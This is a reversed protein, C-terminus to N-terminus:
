GVGVPLLLLVNCTDLLVPCLALENEGISGIWRHLLKDNLDNRNPHALCFAGDQQFVFDRFVVSLYPFFWLQLMDLYCKGSVIQENFFFSGYM